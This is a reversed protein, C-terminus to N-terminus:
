MELQNDNNPVASDRQYHPHVQSVQGGWLQRLTVLAAAQLV